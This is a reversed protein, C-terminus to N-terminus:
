DLAHGLFSFYPFFLISFRTAWFFRDLCFDTSATRSSFTFSRPYSKHFLYTKLHSHFLSPTISTCLPSDSSSSTIPSSIPSYSISSSTGSHPKRLSFPLTCLLRTGKTEGKLWSDVKVTWNIRQQLLNIPTSDPYPAKSGGRVGGGWTSIPLRTHM